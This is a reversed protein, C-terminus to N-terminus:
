WVSLFLKLKLGNLQPSRNTAIYKIYQYYIL